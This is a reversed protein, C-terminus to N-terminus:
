QKGSKKKKKKCQNSLFAKKDRRLIRQFEANWHTYREKEEKGKSRKEAVQLDEESFWKAKQMQKEQSHNQDSGGTCHGLDGDVTRWASQRDQNQKSDERHQRSDIQGKWQIIM